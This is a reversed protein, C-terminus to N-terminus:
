MHGHFPSFSRPSSLSIYKRHREEEAHLKQEALVEVVDISHKKACTKIKKDLDNLAKKDKAMESAFKRSAEKSFIKAALRSNKASQSSHDAHGPCDIPM